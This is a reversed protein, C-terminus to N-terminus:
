RKTPDTSMVLEASCTKFDNESPFLKRSTIGGAKQNVLLTGHLKFYDLFRLFNPKQNVPM